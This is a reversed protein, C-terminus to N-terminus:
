RAGGGERIWGFYDESGMQGGKLALELGDLPGDAHARFLAAGPITPALATLAYIGLQRTAHGSTDGGSVVARRTGSRTLMRGLTTGLATGIRHNVASMDLGAAIATARLQGVAPDDPGTATFILPDRGAALATLGATTVREVEAALAAADACAATVDFRIGEFGNALSWGIQEATTPSVSGSVTIMGNARGAGPAPAADPLLGSAVWHRVLAYEVGQSGIVFPATDRGQWLMQGAAEEEADTACDMTVIRIGNSPCDIEEGNGPWRQPVVRYSQAAIHRGVHPETMPTVPHRAMVPHLDLRYTKDGLTAFLEGDRQFRGMRPAAVLVPISSVGHLDAGIEAACGISGINPASDLTSCIKYHLLQPHLDMLARFAQPLEQRMWEPSQARATSAVGIARLGPHRILHAPTPTELFLMTPLGAFALVEMVAAAGTFDDGYWALLLGDPLANM